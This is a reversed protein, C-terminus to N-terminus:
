GRPTKLNRLMSSACFARSLCELQDVGRFARSPQYKAAAWHAVRDETYRAIGEKWLQLSIYKYDDGSLMKEVERLAPKEQSLAGGGAVLLVFSLALINISIKM